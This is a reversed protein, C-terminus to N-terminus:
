KNINNPVTGQYLDISEFSWKLDAVSLSTNYWPKKWYLLSIFRIFRLRRKYTAKMFSIIICKWRFLVCKQPIWLRAVPSLFSFCEKHTIPLDYMKTAQIFVFKFYVQLIISYHFEVVGHDRIWVNITIHWFKAMSSSDFSCIKHTWTDTRQPM